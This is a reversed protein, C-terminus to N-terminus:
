VMEEITGISPVEFETPNDFEAGGALKDAVAADSGGARCM